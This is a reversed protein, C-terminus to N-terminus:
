HVADMYLNWYYYKGNNEVTCNEKSQSINSHYNNQTHTYIYVCLHLFIYTFVSYIHIYVYVFAANKTNQCIYGQHAYLVDKLFM